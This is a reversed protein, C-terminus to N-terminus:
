VVDEKQPLEIFFTTGDGGSQCWIKGGHAEVITKAIFLGLGSGNPRIKKAADARFFKNFMNKQDESSIVPGYNHVAIFFINDKFYCNIKIITGVKSYYIANELINRVAEDLWREDIFIPALDGSIKLDIAQNNKKALVDLESIVKTLFQKPNSKKPQIVLKGADIRIFNMLDNVLDISFQSSQFIDGVKQHLDDSLELLSESLWKIATLPTKLQHIVAGQIEWNRPAGASDAELFVLYGTFLSNGGSFNIIKKVTVGSGSGLLDASSKNCFLHFPNICLILIPEKLRYLFSEYSKMIRNNLCTKRRSKWM